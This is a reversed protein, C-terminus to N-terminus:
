NEVKIYWNKTDMLKERLAADLTGSRRAVKDALFSADHRRLAVRMLDYYRQGEFAQELAGEAVILNEVQEIQYNLRQLSDAIAPNDPMVYTTDNASYGCGRGHIGITNETTAAATTELIYLTNPFNFSRLWAAHQPLYYPVVQNEIVSNNIGRKLIAFAFRPFGARCLAEAMRLYVMSRRLIHVNRTSHKSIASYNSVKKGGAVMNLGELTTYVAGLRQDGRKLEPLDLPAYVYDGGSTLHCYKQAASLSVIAKSPVIASQYDNRENTNFLDRLESYNGESPISDGPIMTILESMSTVTESFNGFCVSSWGDVPSLWRSDNRQYRVASTTLPYASNRGNRTSLYQYYNEAAERYKGSWLYLDGLLVYVPYYFLKSNTNRITGYGPTEVNVFPAIDTVFYDCIQQLNYYPYNQESQEQTLIPETIFPVSGYNLAMQLYTWARFAKVAAYEKMFLYENRNNRMATDAKALYYNCNNIVAYYDQLRAYKNDTTIDFSALQRLDTSAKATVDVLDGRMEGLLITRDAIAQMKNMIGAVAWLTDADSNLSREGDDYIVQDSDDYIFDSCSIFFSSHLIFFAAGLMKVM